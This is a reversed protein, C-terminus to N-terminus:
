IIIGVHREINHKQRSETGSYPSISVLTVISLLLKALPRSLQHFPYTIRCLALKRIYLIKVFNWNSGSLYLIACCQRPHNRPLNEFGAREGRPPPPPPPPTMNALRRPLVEAFTAVLINPPDGSIGPACWNGHANNLLHCGGWNTGASQSEGFWLLSPKPWSSSYAEHRVTAPRPVLLKERRPLCIDLGM